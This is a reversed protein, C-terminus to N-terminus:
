NSPDASRLRVALRAAATVPDDSSLRAELGGPLAASFADTLAPGMRVVGGTLGVPLLQGLRQLSVTALRALEQGAQGLLQLAAEDGQAAARSVAPALGAVSSRGEGYVLSRIQPWDDTGLQRIVERALLRGSPGGLEDRWRLTQRLAQQGIWFGGGADDILYGHGGVRLALGFRPLHYAISGTGGYVLVGEGPEFVNRYAIEMDNDVWVADSNLTLERSIETQLYAAAPSAADLGAAGMVVGTPQGVARVEGLLQRLRALGQEGESSLEASGARFLHGTIGGLRGRALENGLADLLLWGTSSGGADIGLGLSM